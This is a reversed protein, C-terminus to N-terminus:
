YTFIDISTLNCNFNANSLYQMDLMFQKIYIKNSM